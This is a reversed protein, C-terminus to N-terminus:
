CQSRLGEPSSGVQLTCACPAVRSHSIVCCICCLLSPRLGPEGPSSKSYLVHYILSTLLIVFLNM